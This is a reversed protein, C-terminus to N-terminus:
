RVLTDIEAGKNGITSSGALSNHQAFRREIDGALGVYMADRTDPDWFCYIGSPHWDNGGVPLLTRLAQRIEQREDSTYVDRIV